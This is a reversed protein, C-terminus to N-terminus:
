IRLRCTFSCRLPSGLYPTEGGTSFFQATVSHICSWLSPDAGQGINYLYRTSRVETHQYRSDDLWLVQFIISHQHLYEGRPCGAVRIEATRVREMKCRREQERVALPACGGILASGHLYGRRDPCFSPHSLFPLVFNLPLGKEDKWFVPKVVLKNLISWLVYIFLDVTNSNFLITSAPCSRFLM